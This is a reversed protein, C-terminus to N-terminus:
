AEEKSAMAFDICDTVWVDQQMQILAKPWSSFGLHFSFSFAGQSEIICRSSEHSKNLKNPRSAKFDQHPWYSLNAEDAVQLRIPTVETIKILHQILYMPHIQVWSTDILSILFAPPAAYEYSM